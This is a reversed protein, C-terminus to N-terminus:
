AFGLVTKVAAFFGPAMWILLVFEGLALAPVGLRFEPKFLGRKAFFFGFMVGVAGLLCAIGLLINEHIRIKTFKALIRDVITLVFGLITMVVAIYALILTLMCIDDGALTM